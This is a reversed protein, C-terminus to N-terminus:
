LSTTDKFEVSLVAIRTVARSSDEDPEYLRIINARIKVCGRIPRMMEGNFGQFGRIRAVTSLSGFFEVSSWLRWSKKLFRGDTDACSFSDVSMRYVVCVHATVTKKESFRKPYM